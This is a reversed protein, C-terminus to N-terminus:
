ASPADPTRFDKAEDNTLSDVSAGIMQDIRSDAKSDLFLITQGEKQLQAYEDNRERMFPDIPGRGYLLGFTTSPQIVPMWSGAFQGESVQVFHKPTFSPPNM